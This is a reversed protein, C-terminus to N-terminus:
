RVVHGHDAPEDCPHCELELTAHEIGFADRLMLKLREGIAQAEHLTPEGNLLLHASLAPTDSALNWLHLHHAADISPDAALAFEVDTPSMGRPTGELLVNLTDRLLGWASWVVLGAIAISAVPDVWDASWVLVSVGAVMAGVSGAADLMMHIFAGRMNLSEGQAKSLFMASGLNVILGLAAVVLMGAGEVDSSGGFRGVAEYVIWASAVLLTLGNAQAGLVEARQLGFSHRETAPRSQLRQAVLAILLGAVDSLMHAADALLALSHFAVGGVVEAVFFAANLGLAIWLARSQASLPVGHSHSHGAHAAHDHETDTM